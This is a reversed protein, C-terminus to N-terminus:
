QNYTLLATESLVLFVPNIWYCYPGLDFLVLSKQYLIWISLEINFGCLLKPSSVQQRDSQRLKHRWKICKTSLVHLQQVSVHGRTYDWLSLLSQLQRYYISETGEYINQGCVVSEAQPQLLLKCGQSVLQNGFLTKQKRKSCIWM